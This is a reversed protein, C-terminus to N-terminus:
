CARYPNRRTYPLKDGVSLRRGKPPAQTAIIRVGDRLSKGRAACAGRSWRKCHDNPVIPATFGGPRGHSLAGPMRMRFRCQGTGAGRWERGGSRSVPQGEGLRECTRNVRRWSAHAGQASDPISPDGSPGFGKLAARDTSNGCIGQCRFAQAWLVSLQCGRRDVRCGAAFGGADRIRTGSPSAGWLRGKCPSAASVWWRVVVAAAIRCRIASM